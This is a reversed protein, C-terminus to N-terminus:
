EEDKATELAKLFLALDNRSDEDKLLESDFSFDFGARKVQIKTSPVVSLRASTDKGGQTEGSEPLQPNTLVIQPLRVRPEDLKADEINFSSGLM